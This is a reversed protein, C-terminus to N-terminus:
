ANKTSLHLRFFTAHPELPRPNLDRRGSESSGNGAISSPEKQKSPSSTVDIGDCALGVAPVPNSNDDTARNQRSKYGKPAVCNPRLDNTGTARESERAAERDHRLPLEPLRDLAGYVDLLKPDTYVNMTLKIDSHRMAVQATRPSVGGKSLLTGFTHRLAHVDLVRGRADNKAIGALKLDRELIRHLGMPVEFVKWEPPLAMPIPQGIKLRAEDQLITLKEALWQRTDEALDQRLPISNGERNKEDAANLNLHPLEADLSLQGVTLSALEGKRLGTLVLTKYIL